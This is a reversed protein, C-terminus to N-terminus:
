SKDPTLDIRRIEVSLVTALDCHGGSQSPLTVVQAKPFELFEMQLKISPRGVALATENGQLSPVGGSRNIAQLLEMLGRSQM